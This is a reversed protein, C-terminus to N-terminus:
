VPVEQAEVPTAAAPVSTVNAMRERLSDRAPDEAPKEVQIVGLTKQETRSVKNFARGPLRDAVESMTKLGVQFAALIDDSMADDGEIKKSFKGIAKKALAAGDTFLENLSDHQNATEVAIRAQIARCHDMFPAHRTLDQVTYTSLGTAAAADKASYGMVLLQAVNRHVPPADAIDTYKLDSGSSTAIETTM